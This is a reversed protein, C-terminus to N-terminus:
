KAAGEAEAGNVIRGDILTFRQRAMKAVEGDHTVVLLTIGQERNLRSLTETIETGTKSDLNGTPEDALVLAPNNALARAMAIRQREGGSMERPRHGARDTLGVMELLEAARTRRTRKDTGALKLPVEVNELATLHGLLFFDQFIFGVSTLRYLALEHSSMGDLRRGDVSIAGSTPTDLGGLLSLLTSKGSGSPGVVAAFGGKELDLDVGDLARVEVKGIRYTRTLNRAEISAM